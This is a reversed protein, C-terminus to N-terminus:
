AEELFNKVNRHFENIIREHVIPYLKEDRFKSGSKYYTDHIVETTNPGKSVLKIMQSGAAKGGEVYCFKM